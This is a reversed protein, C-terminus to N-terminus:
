EAAPEQAEAAPTEEEVAAAEAEVVPAEEVIAPAEAKARSKKKAEAKAEARSKSAESQGGLMGARKMLGRATDSPQAGKQLWDQAKETDLKLVPPQATPDYYGIIEIFRGDRACRRDAVVIRYFPRKKAGMRRLRIRVM